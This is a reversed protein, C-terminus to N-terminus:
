CTSTARSASRPEGARAAISGRRADPSEGTSLTAAQLIADRASYDIAVRLHLNRWRAHAGRSGAITARLAGPPPRAPRRDDPSRRERRLAEIRHAALSAAAADASGVEPTPRSWNDSSFAYLTLTGVGARVAAEVIKARPACAPAHGATRPLGRAAAWRGNGDM